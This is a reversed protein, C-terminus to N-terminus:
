STTSTLEILEQTIKAQRLKNYQLSLHTLLAKANRTSQDMSIFRAAQEAFFSESILYTLTSELILPVLSDLLKKSSMYWIRDDHLPPKDNIDPALPVVRFIRPKQTFFGKPENCIAVISSYTPRTTMILRTIEQAIGNIHKDSLSGFHRIAKPFVSEKFYETTKNGVVIVDLHHTTDLKSIYNNYFQILMANFSGCLGRQSGILIILRRRIGKREIVPHLVPHHWNPTQQELDYLLSRLGHTYEELTSRLKKLHAHTSRAILQMAQAIKKSTEVAHIRRRLQILQSM